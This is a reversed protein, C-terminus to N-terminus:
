YKIKDFLWAATGPPRFVLEGGDAIGARQAYNKLRLKAFCILLKIEKRNITKPSEILLLLWLIVLSLDDLKESFSIV